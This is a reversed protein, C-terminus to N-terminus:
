DTISNLVFLRKSIKRKLRGKKRKKRICFAKSSSFIIYDIKLSKSNSPILIKLINNIFKPINVIKLVLSRININNLIKSVYSSSLIYSAKSRLYSKKKSFYRSTIGLSSNFIVTKSHMNEQFSPFFRSRKFNLNLIYSPNFSSNLYLGSTRFFLYTFFNKYKKIKSIFLFFLTPLFNNPLENNYKYLSKFRNSYNYRRTNFYFYEFKFTYIQKKFCKNRPTM